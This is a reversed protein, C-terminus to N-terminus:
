KREGKEGSLHNAIHIWRAARQIAKRYHFRRLFKYRGFIELLWPDVVTRQYEDMVQAVVEGTLDIETMIRPKNRLM